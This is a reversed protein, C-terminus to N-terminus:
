PKPFKAKVARCAAIYADIQAQDGKVVGDIYDAISPYEAVRLEAYTLVRVVPSPNVIEGETYDASIQGDDSKVAIFHNDMGDPTGSIESDYDIINVVKSTRTDIICHRM